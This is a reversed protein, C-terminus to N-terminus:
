LFYYEITGLFLFHTTMTYINKYATHSFHHAHIYTYLQIFFVRSNM